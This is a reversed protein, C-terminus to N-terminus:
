ASASSSARSSATRATASASRWRRDAGARSLRGAARVEAPDHVQTNAPQRQARAGRRDDRPARRDDDRPAGQHDAARSCRRRISRQDRHQEFVTATTTKPSARAVDHAAHRERARAGGDAERSRAPHRGERAFYVTTQEPQTTDALFVDRWGGGPPMDRVYLVRNPFSRFFVRPKVDSEARPRWSTSRSKASRRTPTRCRSSTEYATAATALVAVLAVPRLLRLPQRRVGAHAVFERDASLRGFGVLIGLLVAMPITVCLAQPLLTLLVRAVISWEVGKAILERGAASDAADDPRLHPGLLALLLAAAIERVLYRDLIKFM